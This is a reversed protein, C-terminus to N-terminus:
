RPEQEQSHTDPMRSRVGILAVGAVAFATGLAALAWGLAADGRQVFVGLCILLLGGYILVWVLKELTRTTM